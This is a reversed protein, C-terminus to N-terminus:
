ACARGDALRAHALRSAGGARASPADGAHDDLLRERLPRVRTVSAIGSTRLTAIPTHSCARCGGRSRLRRAADAVEDLVHHELAGLVARRLPDRGLDVRDAAVHVGEGGLLVGREVELHEVLVQREGDLDEAVDDLVREEIGCSIARSFFTMKSSILMTSSM